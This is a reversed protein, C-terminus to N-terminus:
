ILDGYLLWSDSTLKVITAVSSRGATKKRNGESLILDDGYPVFQIMNVGTQMIMVQFGAQINLSSAAPLNLPQPSSTGVDVVMLLSGNDLYTLSSSRDPIIRLASSGIGTLKSGDGYFSTATLNNFYANLGTLNGTLTGGSLPLKTSDLSAASIGSLKSGDGYFTTATLNNFYANTGTLNGTLTGGSLPLVGYFNIATLNNFYANTGTLNGTLTGGTLPLKSSDVGTGGTGSTIGTLHSGDGYFATATLPGTLVGGSLPLKTSDLGSGSGGGPIREAVFSLISSLAITVVEHNNGVTKHDALILESGSLSSVVEFDILTKNM